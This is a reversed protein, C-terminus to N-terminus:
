NKEKLVQNNVFNTNLRCISCVPPCIVNNRKTYYLKEIPMYCALNTKTHFIDLTKSHPIENGEMGFLKDGCIYEYLPNDIVFKMEKVRDNINENQLRWAYICRPKM